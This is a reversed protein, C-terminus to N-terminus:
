EGSRDLEQLIHQRVEPPLNDLHVHFSLQLARLYAIIAWCDPTPVQERYDPMSGLGHTIVDFFYGPPAQRLRESHFTPPATFGREVVPGHGTGSGGHCVACFVTYHVKGRVLLPETVELPIEEVYPIRRIQELSPMVPAKGGPEVLAAMFLSDPTPRQKGEYLQPDLHLADRPVTGAPPHRASMRNEFLLSPELPRYSPQEAMEQRCGSAAVAAALAAAVFWCSPFLNVKV